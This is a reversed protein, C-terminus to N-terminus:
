APRQTPSTPTTSRHIPPTFSNVGPRFHSPDAGLTLPAVLLRSRSRPSVFTLRCKFPFRRPETSPSRFPSASLTSPLLRTSPPLSLRLLFVQVQLRRPAQEVASDGEGTVLPVPFSSSLVVPAAAGLPAPLNVAPVVLVCTVTANAWSVCPVFGSMGRSMPGEACGEDGEAQRDNPIGLEGESRRRRWGWGQWWLVSCHSRLRGREGEEGRPLRLSLEEFKCLHKCPSSRDLFDFSLRSHLSPRLPQRTRRLSCGARFIALPTPARPTTGAGGTM